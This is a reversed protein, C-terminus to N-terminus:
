REAQMGNWCGKRTRRKIERKRSRSCRLKSSSKRRHRYVSRLGTATFGELGGAAAAEAVDALSRQRAVAGVPGVVKARRAPALRRRRHMHTPIGYTTKAKARQDEDELKRAKWSEKTSSQRADSQAIMSPSTITAERRTSGEEEM